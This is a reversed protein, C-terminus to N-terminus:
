SVFLSIVSLEGVERNDQPPHKIVTIMVFYKNPRHM